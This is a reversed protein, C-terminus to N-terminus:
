GHIHRLRRYHSDDSLPKTPLALQWHVGVQEPRFGLRWLHDTMVALDVKTGTQEVFLKMAARLVLQPSSARVLGPWTMLWSRIRNEIQM